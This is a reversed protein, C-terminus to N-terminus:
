HDQKDGSNKTIPASQKANQACHNQDGQQNRGEKVDPLFKLFTNKQEHQREKSHDHEKGAVIQAIL